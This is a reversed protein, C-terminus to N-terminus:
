RVAAVAERKKREFTLGEGGRKVVVVDGPAFAGSILQKALPDQVHRMIARKLPRAGFTPDYGVEGLYTLAEPTVELDLDREHLLKRVREIQIGVIRDLEQRGLQTFVVIEDVRNLFEPRFTRRLEEMMRDPDTIGAAILPSGVNSTM